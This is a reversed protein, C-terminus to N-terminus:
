TLDHKHEPKASVSPIRMLSFLEEFFRDKNEEIYQRIEANDKEIMNNTKTKAIRLKRIIGPKEFCSM